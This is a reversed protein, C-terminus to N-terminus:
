SHLTKRQDEAFFAYKSFDDSHVSKSEVEDSQKLVESVVKDVDILEVLDQNFQVAGLLYSDSSNIDSPLLANDNINIIRDAKSALFAVLTEGIRVVVILSQKLNQTKRGCLVDCIDIVPITTEKHITVVGVVYKQLKPLVTVRPCPMIEQVLSVKVGYCQRIGNLRFLFIGYDKLDSYSNM